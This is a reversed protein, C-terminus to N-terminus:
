SLVSEKKWTVFGRWAMFFFLLYMLSFLSLDKYYNLPIAIANSIIYALWNEIKRKAMWWMGLISFSTVLADAIPANSDTKYQLWLYIVTWSVLVIVLGTIREKSQCWTIPFVFSQDSKKLMWAYWGFISMGFYYLHLIGEAYLPPNIKFLYIYAAILVGIIGTPFVLVKNKLAYWVSLVQAITSIWELMSIASMNEGIQQLIASM